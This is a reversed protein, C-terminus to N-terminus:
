KVGKHLTNVIIEPTHLTAAIRYYCNITCTINSGINFIKYKYALVKQLIYATGL